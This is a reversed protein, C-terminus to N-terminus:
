GLPTVVLLRNRASTTFNVNTNGTVYRLEFTHQGPSVRLIVPRAQFQDTTGACDANGSLPGTFFLEYTNSNNFQTRMLGGGGGGCDPLPPPALNGDIFLGIAAFNNFSTASPRLEASAFVAVLGSAPVDITVSPGDKAVFATGGFTVEDSKFASRQRAFDGAGLGGLTAADIGSRVQALTQGGLTAADIGSRVQALTQGGLTAADIGSRVQALTQGGLTAADIGSRVQALTRGALRGADPVRGLKSEAIERGTLTNRAVDRGRITGNRIDASTISNDVIQKGTIRTAAVAGSTLALFLALYAVVNSRAHAALRGIVSGM